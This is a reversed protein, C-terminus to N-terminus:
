AIQHLKRTVFPAIQKSKSSFIKTTQSSGVLYSIQHHEEFPIQVWNSFISGPLGYPPKDQVVKKNTHWIKQKEKGEESTKCLLLLLFM